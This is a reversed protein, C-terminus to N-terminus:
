KKRATAIISSSIFIKKGSFYYVIQSIAFYLIKALNVYTKGFKGGTGYPDGTTPKSNLIEINIFKSNQLLIRLSQSNVGWRHIIGPKLGFLRFLKTNGLKWAFLHYSFNNVRLFLVGGPKIIRYIENLELSPNPLIDLVTWLTVVNYTNDPIKLTELPSNYVKFGFVDRCHKIAPKSIEIGECEWGDDIALKLFYGYGCGVDLLKGKENLLSNIKKLGQFFLDKKSHLYVDENDESSPASSLLESVESYAIQCKQCQNYNEIIKKVNESNCVPCRIKSLNIFYKKWRMQM